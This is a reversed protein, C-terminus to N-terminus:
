DTYAPYKGFAGDRYASMLNTDIRVGKHTGISILKTGADEQNEAIWLEDRRIDDHMMLLLDHTTFLLQKRTNESCSDIFQKILDYTLATHFSRDLEDVVYIKGNEVNSALEFFLPLLKVLRQTGMSEQSLDFPVDEGASNTHALQVKQLKPEDGQMDIIYIECSAPGNIQLQAFRANDQSIASLCDDLSNQPINLSEWTVERLLLHSVGTGYKRLRANIFDRFDDRLLMLYLGGYQAEIDVVELRKAFWDYVPRFEDANQSVANHLFLQNDRTGAAVFRYRDSSFKTGFKWDALSRSFVLEDTRTRKIYLHEEAIRQRTLSFGYVYIRDDILIEVELFTPKGKLSPCLRYPDVPIQRDVAIGNVILFKMFALADILNTKGSANAGYLAATPLIKKTGYMAPLKALTDARRRERSASLDLRERCKFSRWNEVTLSVLM